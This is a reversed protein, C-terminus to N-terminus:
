SKQEREFDRRLLLSDASADIQVAGDISSAYKKREEAWAKLRKELDDHSLHIGLRILTGSFNSIVYNNKSLKENPSNIIHTMSKGSVVTMLGNNRALRTMMYLGCGSNQWINKREQTMAKANGSVGPM